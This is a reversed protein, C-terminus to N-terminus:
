EEGKELEGVVFWVMDIDGGEMGRTLIDALEKRSMM